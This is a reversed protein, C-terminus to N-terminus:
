SHRFETHTQTHEAHGSLKLLPADGYVGKPWFRHNRCRCNLVEEAAAFDQLTRALWSNHGVRGVQEQCSAAAFACAFKEDIFIHQSFSPSGFEVLIQDCWAAVQNEIKKNLAQPRSASNCIVSGSRGCCM